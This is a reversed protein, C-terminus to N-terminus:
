VMPPVFEEIPHSVFIDALKVNQWIFEWTNNQQPESLLSTDIQIHSRYIIKADPNVKKIYPIMGSPQPDDIVITTAWKFVDNFSRANKTSWDLFAKKEKDTLVEKDPAVGQLINHFKKKTIQFIEPNENGMVYWKVDVGLQSYLRILSHRMLAVGGGRPTSSFFAVREGRKKTKEALDILTNYDQADITKKYDVPRVLHSCIVRRNNDFKIDVINDELFQKKAESALKKAKSKESIGSVKFSFPVIDDELWLKSFFEDLTETNINESKNMIGAAIFKVNKKHAFDRITELIAPLIDQERIILTEMGGNAKDFVAITCSGTDIFIGLYLPNKKPIEYYIEQKEKHLQKAEIM